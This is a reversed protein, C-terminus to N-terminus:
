THIYTQWHHLLLLLHTQAQAQARAEPPTTTRTKKNKKKTLFPLPHTPPPPPLRNPADPQETESCCQPKAAFRLAPDRLGSQMTRDNSIMRPFLLASQSM